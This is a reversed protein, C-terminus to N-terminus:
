VTVDDDGPEADGDGVALSVVKGFFPSLGMTMGIRAEVIDKNGGPEKRAAYSALAEAVTPPLERRDLAPVTEIDVVLTKCVLDEVPALAPDLLQAPDFGEAMDKATTARIQDIILQPGYTPNDRMRGRVKVATSPPTNKVAEMADQRDSWVKAEVVAHVDAL